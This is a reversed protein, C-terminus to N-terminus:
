PSPPPPNTGDAGDRCLSEPPQVCNRYMHMARDSGQLLMGVSARGASFHERLAPNRSAIVVTRSDEMAGAGFGGMLSVVYAVLGLDAPTLSFRQSEAMGTIVGAVFAPLNEGESDGDAGPPLGEGAIRRQTSVLMHTARALRDMQGLDLLRGRSREQELAAAAAEGIGPMHSM